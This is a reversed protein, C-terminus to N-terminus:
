NVLGSLFIIGDEVRRKISSLQHLDFKGASGHTGKNFVGFLQVINEMDQEVFDELAEETMGRRYLLFRIKSRRTPKGKETRESDGFTNFVEVDPAKIELIETFIERASTCFHRTADPNNPSLSFLAGRWRDDLDPSIDRLEGTLKSVQLNNLGEGANPSTGLLVNMVELSNATERESLDLVKDYNSDLPQTDARQELRTYAEHM